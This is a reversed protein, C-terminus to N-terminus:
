GRPMPDAARNTEIEVTPVHLGADTARLGPFSIERIEPHSSVLHSIGLLLDVVPETGIGARGRAGGFLPAARLDELMANGDERALPAAGVSRDGVAAVFEAVGFTVLTGRSHTRIGAIELELGDGSPESVTVIGCLDEVFTAAAEGDLRDVGDTDMLEAFADSDLGSPLSPTRSRNDVVEGQRRLLDLADVALYPDFYNPIGAERLIEAAGRTREGGMLATVVPADHRTATDAIITALGEFTFLPNPASIVVAAGVNPDELATSLVTEFVEIDSDALLDLPNLASGHAPVVTELREITEPEMRAVDLGSEGVADVAMVGPGGANSIVVVSGPDPVPQGALAPAGEVMREISHVPVAGSQELLTEGIKAGSVEVGGSQLPPGAAPQISIPIETEVRRLDRVFRSDVQESHGMVLDVSERDALLGAIEGPGVDSGAGVGVIAGVSSGQWEAREAITSALVTDVAMVAIAGPTDPMRIGAGPGIVRADLDLEGLEQMGGSLTPILVCRVDTESVMELAAPLGSDLALVVLEEAGLSGTDLADIPTADQEVGPYAWDATDVAPSGEPPCVFHVREPELFPDLGGGPM